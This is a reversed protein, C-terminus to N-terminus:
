ASEKHCTCSCADSDIIPVSLRGLEFRNADIVYTYVYM